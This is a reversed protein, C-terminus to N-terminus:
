GRRGPRAPPPNDEPDWPWFDDPSWPYDLTAHDGFALRICNLLADLLSTGEICSGHDYWPYGLGGDSLASDIALQAWGSRTLHRHAFAIRRRGRTTLHVRKRRRDLGDVSRKLLGLQELSGLMRSVTARSVGLVRRLGTQPVGNRHENVAYLLDFRAATLGMKALMVRTIRLTSHHGRKLRFFISHM